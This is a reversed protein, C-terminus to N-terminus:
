LNFDSPNLGISCVWSYFEETPKSLHRRYKILDQVLRIYSVNDFAKVRFVKYGQQVWTLNKRADKLQVDNTNHISGDVEIIYKYRRNVVDPLYYGFIEDYKDTRIKIHAEFLPRFWQESKPVNKKLHEVMNDLDRRTRKRKMAGTHCV